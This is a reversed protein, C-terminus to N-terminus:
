KKHRVAKRLSKLKADLEDRVQDATEYERQYLLGYTFTDEGATHAETVRSLLYSRSVVSDQYEGLLDQLDKAASSVRKAGAASAVYRLRKAAKRIRHLSEDQYHGEARMASRAARRVKRYAADVSGAGETDASRHKAKDHAALTDLTHLLRMYRQSRMAALSRHLGTEYQHAAAEVLHARVPGRILEDPLQALARDYRQGLVEADRAEGLINALLRLEDLPEPTIDLGFRQPDSQLLSRIRRIAVRMQHVSDAANMRVARDRVALLGIQECLARHIRDTNPVGTGNDDTPVNGAGGALVRALKSGHAAPAAGADLLRAVLRKFLASDSQIGSSEAIELEWERWTQGSDAAENGTLRSAHVRDDCFEAVPAGSDGLLRQVTRTTIVRAVPVLEDERTIALVMDQLEAPVAPTSGHDFGDLPLRLETRTDTGAPLKLHWGEDAGGSRRRLTIHHQALREDATDFYVADLQEAASTRVQRIAAIGDFSPTINGDEVDFKRETEVHQSAMPDM